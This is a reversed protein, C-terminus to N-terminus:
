QGEARALILSFDQFVNPPDERSNRAKARGFLGGQGNEVPTGYVKEHQKQALGSQDTIAMAIEAMLAQVVLDVFYPPWNEEAVNNALFDIYIATAETLLVSGQVEFDKYPSAGAVNTDYVAIPGDILRTAPLQYQYTWASNPTASLRTLQQKTIAFKWDYLSLLTDKVTPYNNACITARDTGETFSGITKEGLRTLAMSCIKIDNVTPSSPM